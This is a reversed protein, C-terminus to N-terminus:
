RRSSFGQSLPQLDIESLGGYFDAEDGGMSIIENVIIIYWMM